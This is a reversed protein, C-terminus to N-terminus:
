MPTYGWFHVERGSAPTDGAADGAGNGLWADGGLLVRASCPYRACLVGDGSCECLMESQDHATPIMWQMTYLPVESM